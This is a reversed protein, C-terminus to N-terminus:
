KIDQLEAVLVTLESALRAVDEVAVSSENMAAANETALENIHTASASIQDSAASQEGAAAAIEQVRDATANAMSVITDLVAASDASLRTNEDIADSASDTSAISKEASIQIADVARSVETTAQMTKEALKRVEDAVVAFGRGAEGARAAEIAANLALLNTQDAIDNIVSIIDGISEAHGGLEHMDGKLELAHEHVKTIVDRSQQVVEVGQTASSRTSEALESAENASRAVDVVSTNMQEMAAAVDTTGNQQTVSLKLSGDIQSSIESCSATLRDTIVAIKEASDAILEHQAVLSEEHEKLMTMDIYLCLGGVCVRDMNYLPYVNALVHRQGGKHGNITVELNKFVKGSKISQGVATERTKDNYFIEGLTNGYQSEPSGDIELMDMCEQNTFLAKEEADVFLYPVPLGKIVGLLVGKERKLEEILNKILSFNVNQSAFNPYPADFNDQLIESLYDQLKKSDLDVASAALYTVFFVALIMLSSILFYIPIAGTTAYVVISSVVQILLGSLALYQIKKSSWM